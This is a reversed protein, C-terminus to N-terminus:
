IQNDISDYEKIISVERRITQIANKCFNFVLIICVTTPILLLLLLGLVCVFLIIILLGLFPYYVMCDLVGNCVGKTLIYLSLNGVGVSIGYGFIICLIICIWIIIPKFIENKHKFIATLYLSYSSTM